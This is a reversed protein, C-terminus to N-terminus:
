PGLRSYMEIQDDMKLSIHSFVCNPTFDAKFIAGAKWNSFYSDFCLDLLPAIYNFLFVTTDEYSDRIKKRKYLFFSVFYENNFTSFDAIFDGSLPNYFFHM